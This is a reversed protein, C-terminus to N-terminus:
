KGGVNKKAVNDNCMPVNYNWMARYESDSIRNLPRIRKTTLAKFEDQTLRKLNPRVKKREHM